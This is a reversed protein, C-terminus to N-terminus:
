DASLEMPELRPQRLAVLKEVKVMVWDALKVVAWGFVLGAVVDITWHIQLYLTSFIIASCYAAMGYRFIPGRERLALLLVAFAISTHMSPFCNQVNLQVHYADMFTPRAFADPRGLVWWVEHLEITNYFPIILPTQLLHTALLYRLMKRWDKAAFSRIVSGWIAFGFGFNYVWKLKTTLWASPLLQPVFAPDNLPIKAFAQDWNFYHRVANLQWDAIKWWWDGSNKYIWYPVFLMLIGVPLFKLWSREAEDQQVDLCLVFLTAWLMTDWHEVNSVRYILYVGAAFLLITAPKQWLKAPVQELLEMKM